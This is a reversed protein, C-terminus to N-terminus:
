HEPAFALDLVAILRFQSTDIRNVNEEALLHLAVGEGIVWRGGAQAGFSIGQYDALLDDRFRILSM